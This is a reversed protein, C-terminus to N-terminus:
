GCIEGTVRAVAEVCRHLHDVPVYEDPRHAVDISGPGFVLTRVGLRELQGGDTAFQAAGHRHDLCHPRLHRELDTGEPTLMAPTVRILRVSLDGLPALRARIQELLAAPDMGPMPRFGVTLTCADPVINVATGGQIQAVNMTVYPRELLDPFHREQAWAHALRDLEEMARGALLVANRGLDPKSSHASRGRCDVAFAVHGPHMRLIRFGTPEGIWCTSPLARGEAFARDVFAKAGLCGVEEDHTFLLTLPERLDRLDRQRSLRALGALTAAAFAKMDASGRALLHDGRRTLRFPDSTWPQGEVPVVDLHGSLILGRGASRDAGGEGAGDGAGREPGAQALLNVKGPSSEQLAVRMGLGELRAAMWAAIGHTPRDSVTDFAVAQALLEEVPEM